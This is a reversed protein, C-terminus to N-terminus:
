KGGQEALLEKLKKRGRSLHNDVQERKMNLEFAIKEISENQFYRMQFIVSYPEKLRKIIECLENYNEEEVLTEDVSLAQPALNETYEVENRENRTKKLYDLARSRGILCLMNKLSGRSLDIRSANTWLEIFVDSVVEEVAENDNHVFQKVLSYILRGYEKIAEELYKEKKHQIGELIEKENVWIRRVIDIQRYIRYFFRNRDSFLFFM